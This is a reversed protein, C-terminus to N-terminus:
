RRRGAYIAGDRAAARWPRAKGLAVALHPDGRDLEALFVGDAAGALVSGDPGFVAGPLGAGCQAPTSLSVWLSNTAGHARAMVGHVPDESYSSLLVADVGLREYAAFLEPFCVEICLTFGLRFGDIEMVLPDVGPTFWGTVETHSLMRKAYRGVVAGTDSIVLLCNQPWAGGPLRRNCGLVAWIGLRGALAATEALEEELAPWDVDAWDAIQAKPYGSLAGEPFQVLRAGSAAAQALAARIARGNARVDREVAVQAVALRM